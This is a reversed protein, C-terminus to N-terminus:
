EHNPEQFRKSLQKIARFVQIKVNAVSMGLSEAIQQYKLGQFKSLILVERQRAPLEQLASQLKRQAEAALLAEEPTHGGTPLAALATEDAGTQPRRGTARWHDLQQNRALRWFWAAFPASPAYHKTLWIKVFVEQALEEATEQTGLVRYFYNVLPTKWRGVLLNFAQRDRQLVRLMLEEDRPTSPDQSHTHQTMNAIMSISEIWKLSAQDLLNCVRILNESLNKILTTQDAQSSAKIWQSLKKGTCGPM